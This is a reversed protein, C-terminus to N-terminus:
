TNLLLKSLCSVSGRSQQGLDPVMDRFLSCLLWNIGMDDDCLITTTIATIM